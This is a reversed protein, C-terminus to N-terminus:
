YKTAHIFLSSELPLELSETGNLLNEMSFHLRMRKVQGYWKLTASGFFTQWRTLSNTYTVLEFQAVQLSAIAKCRSAKPKGARDCYVAHKNLIRKQAHCVWSCINSLRGALSLNQVIGKVQYINKYIVLSPFLGMWSSHMKAQTEDLFFPKGSFSLRQSALPSDVVLVKYSQVWPLGM